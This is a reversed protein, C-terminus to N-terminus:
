ETNGTLIGGPFTAFVEAVDMESGTGSARADVREGTLANTWQQPADPPL